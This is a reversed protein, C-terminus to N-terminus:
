HTVHTTEEPLGPVYGAHLLDQETAFVVSQSVTPQPPSDLMRLVCGSPSLAYCRLVEMTMSELQLVENGSSNRRWLGPHHYYRLGNDTLLM